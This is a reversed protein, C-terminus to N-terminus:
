MAGRLRALEEKTRAKAVQDNGRAISLLRVTCAGLENRVRRLEAEADHAMVASMAAAGTIPSREM